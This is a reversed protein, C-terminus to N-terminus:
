RASVRALPEGSVRKQEFGDDSCQLTAACLDSKSIIYGPRAEIVLANVVPGSQSFYGPSGACTEDIEDRGLAALDPAPKQMRAVIKNSISVEIGVDHYIRGTEPGM